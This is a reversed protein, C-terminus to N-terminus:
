RVFGLSLAPTDRSAIQGNSHPTFHLSFSCPSPVKAHHGWRLIPYSPYAINARCKSKNGHQAQMRGFTGAAERPMSFLAQHAQSAAARRYRSESNGERMQAWAASNQLLAPSPTSHGVSRSRLPFSTSQQWGPLIQSVPCHGLVFLWVIPVILLVWSTFELHQHDKFYDEHWTKTIFQQPLTFIAHCELPLCSNWLVCVWRSQPWCTYIIFSFCSHFAASM